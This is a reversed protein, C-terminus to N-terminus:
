DGAKSEYSVSQMSFSVDLLEEITAYTNTAAHVHKALLKRDIVLHICVCLCCSSRM